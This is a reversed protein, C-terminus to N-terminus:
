ASVNAPEPQQMLDTPIEEKAEDSCIGTEKGAAWLADRVEVGLVGGGFRASRGDGSIATYNLKRM